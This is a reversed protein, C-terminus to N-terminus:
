YKYIKPFEEVNRHTQGLLFIRSRGVILAFLFKRVIRSRSIGLLTIVFRLIFMIAFLVHSQYHSYELLSM